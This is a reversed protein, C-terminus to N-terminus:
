PCLRGEGCAALSRGQVRATLQEAFSEKVEVDFNSQKAVCQVLGCRWNSSPLVLLLLLLRRYHHYIAPAFFPSLTPMWQACISLPSVSSPKLFHQSLPSLTPAAADTPAFMELLSSSSSRRTTTELVCVCVCVDSYLVAASHVAAFNGAVMENGIEGHSVWRRRSGCRSHCVVAAVAAASKEVKGRKRGCLKAEKHLMWENLLTRRSVIQLWNERLHCNKMEVVACLKM